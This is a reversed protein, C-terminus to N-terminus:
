SGLYSEIIKIIDAWVQVMGLHKGTRWQNVTANKVGNKQERFKPSVKDVLHIFGSSNLLERLKRYFRIGRKRLICTQMNEGKPTTSYDFSRM